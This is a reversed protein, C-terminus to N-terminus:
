RSCPLRHGRHRAAPCTDGRPQADAGQVVVRAGELAAAATDVLTAGSEAYAEDVFGAEAGAGREVAVSFGAQGLRSVAEPVLAVRREGPTTERLVAVRM